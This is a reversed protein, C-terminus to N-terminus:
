ERFLSVIKPQYRCSNTDSQFQGIQFELLHSVHYYILKGASRREVIPNTPEGCVCLLLISLVVNLPPKCLQVLCYSPIVWKRSTKDTYKTTGHTLLFSNSWCGELQWSYCGLMRDSDNYTWRDNANLLIKDVNQFGCTQTTSKTVYTIWAERLGSGM